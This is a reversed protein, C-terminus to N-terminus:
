KKALYEELRDWTEAFGDIVGMEIISDRAENTDFETTSVVTTKDGKEQFEVTILMGPMEKNIEGEENSFYDTYVLLEPERITKYIALGWSEDSTKPGRLCFHWRGGEKFELNCEVMPWSRPGWWEKLHTCTSYTEFVLPRPAPFTRSLILKKEEISVGKRNTKQNM